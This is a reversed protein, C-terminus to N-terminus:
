VEMLIMRSTGREYASNDTNGLTRNLALAQGEHYLRYTVEDTTNPADLFQICGHAPTSSNNSDYDPTLIGARRKGPNSPVSLEVGDRYLRFVADNHSEYFLNISVLIKSTQNIPTISTTLPTIEKSATTSWYYPDVVENQITQGLGKAMLQWPANPPSINSFAESGTAIYSAGQYSVVDDAEYSTAADYAGRWVLKIKGLDIISM